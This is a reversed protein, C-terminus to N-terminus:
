GYIGTLFRHEIWGSRCPGVYPQTTTVTIGISCTGEQGDNIDQGDIIGYWDDREDCMSVVHGAELTAIVAFDVSPGARLVAGGANVQMGINCTGHDTDPYLMVSVYISQETSTQAFLTGFFLTAVTTSILLKQM